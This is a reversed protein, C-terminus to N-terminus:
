PLSDEATKLYLFMASFRIIIFDDVAKPFIHCILTAIGRDSFVVGAGLMGVVSASRKSLGARVGCAGAPAFPLRLADALM